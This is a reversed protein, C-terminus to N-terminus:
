ISFHRQKQRQSIMASLSDSQHELIKLLHTFELETFLMRLRERNPDRLRLQELEIRLPVDAKVTALTRSVFAADRHDVLAKRIRAAARFNASNIEDLNEFLNELSQFRRILARATKKGIGRVGPINDAPDGMLGMVEVVKAPEVGFKAKVQDAGIWREKGGDFLRVREGVLQMLDKDGSVVTIECQADKVKKCLTAILDDAEYGQLELVTVNLVELVRRIYPLQAILNPPPEPRNGKYGALLQNRFTRRGADLAVAVYQPQYKKLFKLM